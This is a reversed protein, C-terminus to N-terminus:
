ALAAVVAPQEGFNNETLLQSGGLGLSALNVQSSLAAPDLPGGPLPPTGGGRFAGGMGSGPLGPLGVFGSSLAGMAGSLSYDPM